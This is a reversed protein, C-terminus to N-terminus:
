KYIFKHTHTYVEDCSALRTTTTAEEEAANFRFLLRLFLFLQIHTIHTSGRNCQAVTHGEDVIM